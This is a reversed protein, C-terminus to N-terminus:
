RSPSSSERIVLDFSVYHSQPPAASRGAIREVLLRVAFQALEQKNPAITTLSPTSFAGDVIGDIGVIAIDGPIRYGLESAARIAGLAMLDNLCFVADPAPAHELLRRMTVFGGMRDLAGNVSPVILGPDIPQGATTLAQVYGELRLQPMAMDRHSPGGLMAIRKRGLQVLHETVQYAAAVNDILVHDFPTGQLREGLLVVPLHLSLGHVDQEDLTTPDFIIGDIVHPRLGRVVVREKAREGGTHDVLVIYGSAAGALVIARAVSAFYPNELDPLALAIIGTRGSRLQRAATNPRYDLSEIAELVRRRTEPGVRQHRNNVVNSVTKMSVSARKAVDKLTARM